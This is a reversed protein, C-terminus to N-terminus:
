WTVAQPTSMTVYMILQLLGERSGGRGARGEWWKM